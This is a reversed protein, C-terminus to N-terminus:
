QFVEVECQFAAIIKPLPGMLSDLILKKAKDTDPGGGTDINDKTEIRIQDPDRIVRIKFNKMAQKLEPPWNAVQQAFAGWIWQQMQEFM